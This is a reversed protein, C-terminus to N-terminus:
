KKKSNPENSWDDTRFSSAPLGEKNILSATATNNFAYRVAVPNKIKSADVIVEDGHIVASGKIFIRDEGAIEFFNLEGGGFVDLGSGFVDLTHRM